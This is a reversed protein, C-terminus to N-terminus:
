ELAEIARALHARLEAVQCKHVQNRSALHRIYKLDGERQTQLAELETKIASTTHNWARHKLAWWAVIFGIIIGIVLIAGIGLYATLARYHSTITMM